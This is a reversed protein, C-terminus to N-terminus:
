ATAQAEVRLLRKLNLIYAVLTSQLVATSRGVYRLTKLGHRVAEAFKGEAVIGRLVKGMVAEPTRAHERQRTWEAEFRNRTVTRGTKSTPCDERYSCAACLGRDARYRREGTKETTGRHSLTQQAPCTYTDTEEDYLFETKPFIKGQPKGKQVPTNLSVHAEEAAHLLDGTRFEADVSWEQGPESQALKDAFLAQGQSPEASVLVDEIFLQVSDTSFFMEYGLESRKGHKGRQFRAEPDGASQREGVPKMEQAWRADVGANDVAYETKTLAVPTTNLTPDLAIQQAQFQQLKVEIAALTETYVEDRYPNIAARAKVPTGDFFRHRFDVLGQQVLETLLTQFLTTMVTLGVTRRFKVLTTRDFLEADLRLDCFQRWDLRNRLTDITKADGAVDCFFSLFLTKTLLVPDESPRGQDNSYSSRVAEMVAEDPFLDKIRQLEDSLPTVRYVQQSIWDQTQERRHLM